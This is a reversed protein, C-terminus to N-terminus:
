QDYINFQNFNAVAEASASLKVKKFKCHWNIPDGGDTDTVMLILDQTIYFLDNIVYSTTIATDGATDQNHNGVAILGPSDFNPNAPDMATNDATVSGVLNVNNGGLSSSPYLLFETMRYAYGPTRGGFDLKETEGSTTKGRMILEDPM